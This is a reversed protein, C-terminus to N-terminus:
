KGASATNRDANLGHESRRRECPCLEPSPPQSWDYSFVATTETIAEHRSFAEPSPRCTGAYVVIVTLSPLGNKECHDRICDLYPGLGRRSIPGLGLEQLHTKEALSQYTIKEGRSAQKILIEWVKLVRPMFRVAM